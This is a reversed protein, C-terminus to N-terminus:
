GLFVTFHGTIQQGDSWCGSSCGYWTGVPTEGECSVLLSCDEYHWSSDVSRLVTGTGCWYPNINERETGFWGGNDGTFFSRWCSVRDEALPSFGASPTPRGPTQAVPQVTVDLAYGNPHAALISAPVPIQGPGAFAAPTAALAFVLLFLVKRVM